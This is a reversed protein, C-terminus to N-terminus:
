WGGFQRPGEAQAAAQSAHAQRHVDRDAPIEHAERARRVLWVVLPAVIAVFVLVRLIILVATM